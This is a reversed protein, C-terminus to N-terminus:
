SRLDRQGDDGHWTPAWGPGSFYGGGPKPAYQRWRPKGAASALPDYTMTSPSLRCIGCRPLGDGLQQALVCAGAVANAIDDHAGRMHDITDRGNRTVKRELSVLQHELRPHEILAVSHSNLMPLFGLYLESKVLESPEYNISRQQFQERPWEGAYRDGHVTWVQYRHLLESFEEVVAGPSFPARVERVADLVATKGEAHAIALTMSDSSGGSPDVFAVYSCDRQPLRERVRDTCARVIEISVFSQLDSRFEALYEAMADAPDREMARDIEAQAITPNMDRTPARWVLVPDGDNGFHRQHAEYLSGRKAYPSSACLLMAHEGFQAQGPRIANLIERDPNASGTDTPWFALEDLIAVAIAFGRTRTYSASNVQIRVRSSLEVAEATENELLERLMPVESFFAKIYGLLESAQGRDAAIIMIVAREGPALFPKWDRFVALFVAVLAMIFSKGSRRGCILWGERHPETPPNTRGTCRQYVALQEPTMPLAFLAALFGFWAQWTAPDKFWQRFLPQRIVDLISVNPLSGNKM